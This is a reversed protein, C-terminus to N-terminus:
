CFGCACSERSETNACRSKSDHTSPSVSKLIEKLDKITKPNSYKEVFEDPVKPERNPHQRADQLYLHLMRAVGGSDAVLVVPCKNHLAEKVSSM